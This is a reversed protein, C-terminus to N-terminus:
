INREDAVGFSFYAQAVNFDSDLNPSRFVFSVRKGSGIVRRRVSVYSRAGLVDTGLVFTGLVAATPSVTFNITQTLVNDWYIDVYFSWNGTPDCILELFQGNKRKTALEPELWSFDLHPTQFTSTYGDAGKRFTEQDLKYVVGVGDGIMPRPVGDGDRRLWIAETTDRTSWRFRAIGPLNFDM